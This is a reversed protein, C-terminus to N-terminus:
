GGPGVAAGADFRQCSRLAMCTSAGGIFFVTLIRLSPGDWGM